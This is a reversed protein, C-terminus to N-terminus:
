HYCYCATEGLHIKQSCELEYGMADIMKTPQFPLDVPAKNHEAYGITFDDFTYLHVGPAPSTKSQFTQGATLKLFTKMMHFAPRPRWANTG